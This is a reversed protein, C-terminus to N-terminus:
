FRGSVRLLFTSKRGTVSCEGAWEWELRGSQSGVIGGFLFALLLPAAAEASAAAVAEGGMMAFTLISPPFVPVVESVAM